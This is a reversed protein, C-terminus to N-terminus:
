LDAVIITQSEFEIVNVYASANIEPLRNSFYSAQDIIIVHEPNPHDTSM